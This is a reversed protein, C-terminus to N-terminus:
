DGEMKFQNKLTTKMIAKDFLVLLAPLVLAVMALSLLTGRGVLVGLDYVVPISTTLAMAFGASALIGASTLIASVNTQITKTMAEKKSLSKRNELYSNTFLIAYDVTSGLQVTSVILYGVYSLSSGMFYPISLNIWIATEITFLLIFPLSLSRFTVLLTIFIGLVAIGNVVNTDVDLVNKMDYLTASQGALYHEDYYKGATDKITEVTKFTEKGEDKMDTYILIRVYNDSYFQKSVDKPVFEQPIEAGVYTSYSVVNTVYPMKDLESSLESEKGPNEKPVLLSFINEDGFEKNILTTDRKIRDVNAISGTGYLFKTESQGLFCPIVILLAIILSPIRLKMLLNGAKNVSPILKRHKTKDILKHLMLTLAPLFVMVSIFSLLVGKFLNLGLDSGVGFRMFLLAAFGIVTTIASAAVTPVAQKMALAMAQKPEHDRRHHEFSHLLFIAYDMSVALQLIPSVTLTIFSVEKFILNTGMNTLVAAGIASLFLVPEIWSTTSVVLIVIIIPLLIGLAKLVETVSMEQTKALSVADGSVANDKGIVKYIENLADLEKGSEITLTYLASKNKYYNEVIANDLFELPTTKLIDIGTVDDLWTVSQVGSISSLKKKYEFAEMVSVNQIMVRANPFDNEFEDEMIRIAVTSQADKPLYDVMNYNVSVFMALFACVLAAIIFLYFVIRKHNIIANSFRDM